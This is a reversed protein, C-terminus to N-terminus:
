RRVGLDARQWRTAAAAIATSTRQWASSNRSLRPGIATLSKQSWCPFRRSYARAMDSRAVSIVVTDDPRIVIWADIESAGDVVGASEAVSPLNFGLAMGGGVVPVSILSSRRSLLVYPFTIPLFRTM